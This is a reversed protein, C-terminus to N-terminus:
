ANEGSNSDRHQGRWGTVPLSFKNVLRDAFAATSLRAMYIKHESVKTEIRTRPALDLTRRGDMTIIANSQAASIITIGVTSQPGIVFPRSFLAHAALPVVLVAELDPWLVPGGASFAHATSGTPTACIIGDTAYATLPRDDVDVAVEIMLRRNSKEITAENLAWGRYTPEDGPTSISVDLCARAEVSFAGEVLRKVSSALDTMEAEALFGMHGLNVGLIPITTGWTLEAARLITGDGGLVIVADIEAMDADLDLVPEIGSRRLELVTQAEAQVAEPRGRHTIVMMKRTM